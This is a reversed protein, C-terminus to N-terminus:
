SLDGKLAKDLMELMESHSIKVNEDFVKVSRRNFVIDEFNNNKM